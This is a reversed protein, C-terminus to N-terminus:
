SGAGTPAPRQRRRRLPATASAAVGLVALVVAAVVVAVDRPRHDPPTRPIPAAVAVSAPEQPRRERPPATVAAVPDIVGHGVRPNWGEAPAHATAEIRMAVARADLHPFRARVLAVTAAVLPAAFSTGSVPVPGEAGRYADVLGDATPHLSVVGSGPAAVDVWPGPLSYSSPSGDPEVSGVTLVYDDYWAPSAVTTVARWPDDGPRLPDLGQPNSGQCRDEVNGAAAVVVADKVETAYRVAAGLEPDDLGEAAPACAVESINIVTAGLDAARRVAMAMTRVNGYGPSTRADHDAPDSRRASFHRSSQRVTLIRADPAGGAFGSGPVPQAAVLGAVLTGHADCDQTGDGSSVYDGGPVLGPLRANRGVGTDIVAVLQGAGRSLPWVAPFNLVRQPEPISASDGAVDVTTCPSRQGTDDVPGPEGPPPLRGADVPPPEAAASPATGFSSATLVLAVVVLRAGRAM